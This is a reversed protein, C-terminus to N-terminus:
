PVTRALRFGIFNVRYDINHTNRRTSTTYETSWSGGRVVRRSLDRGAIWASGDTPAGLYNDHWVDQTWEWINGHMDYLGFANPKKQGVPHTKYASNVPFWGYQGLGDRDNNGSYEYITTSGERAAYEWEAESPLRYNKGSKQNLKDIFQQVDEWSVQEVPCILGCTNFDSPNSGMVAKWQGQTIEYKGLAFFRINVLHPPKEHSWGNNSGMSFSGAPINVMGKAIEAVVNADEAAKAQALAKTEGEAKALALAKAEAEAKALPIAKAESEAKAQALAKTEAEAEAKAEEAAKVRALEQAKAKAAAGQAQQEGVYWWGGGAVALMVAALAALLGAKSQKKAQGPNDAYVRITQDQANPKSSTSGEKKPYVKTADPDVSASQEKNEATPQDKAQADPGGKPYVRTSDDERSDQTTNGTGEFYSLLESAKRIREKANTVLCKRIVSKYPEPLRDIGEPLETSLIQMMIQEATTEADRSGFPTSGSLLEHVMIGFSWLDLNSAVKGDIGYKAPAFQEPAMYEITGVMMSSSQGGAATDKSIGFDSIKATLQGDQRVLLINQAKLDRHIIGKSHLYELGLLVDKLLKYLLPSGPNAKAFDKLDGANALEMVGIQLQETEGLANAQELLVVDFYRLLNPHELGIVKRIESLVSYQHTGSNSFVKLAVDRHLLTDTARFVRAFGGKGLLDKQPDYEYRDQIKM